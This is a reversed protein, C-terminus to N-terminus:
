APDYLSYAPYAGLEPTPRSKWRKLMWAWSEPHERIARSLIDNTRTMIAAVDAEEDGTPEGRLNGSIWLRWKAKGEPIMLAAAVPADYWIALKAALPTTRAPLGLFPVYQGGLNGRVNRDILLSVSKGDAVAKKLALSGRKRLAGGGSGRDRLGDFLADVPPLGTSEALYAFPPAYPVVSRSALLLEWNGFHGSLLVVRPHLAMLARFRADDEPLIRVFKAYKERNLPQLHFLLVITRVANRYSARLVRGRERPSMEAGFVCELNQRGATRGRADLAWMVLAMGDAIGLVAPTPLAPFIKMALRLPWTPAKAAVRRLGFAAKAVLTRLPAM